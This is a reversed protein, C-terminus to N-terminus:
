KYNRLPESDRFPEVMMLFKRLTRGDEDNSDVTDYFGDLMTCGDVLEEDENDLDQTIQAELLAQDFEADTLCSFNEDAGIGGSTDELLNV